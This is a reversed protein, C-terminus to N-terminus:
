ILAKLTGYKSRILWILLVITAVILLGGFLVGFGSVRVDVDSNITKFVRKVDKGKSLASILVYMFLIIRLFFIALIYSSIRNIEDIM